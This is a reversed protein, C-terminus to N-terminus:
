KLPIEYSTSNAFFFCSIEGMILNEDDILGNAERKKEGKGKMLM